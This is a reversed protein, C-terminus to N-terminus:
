TRRNSRKKEIAVNREEQNANRTLWQHTEETLKDKPRLTGDKAQEYMEPFAEQHHWIKDQAPTKDLFDDPKCTPCIYSVDGKDDAKGRLKASEAGCDCLPM